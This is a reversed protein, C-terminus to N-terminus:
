GSRKLTQRNISADENRESLNIFAKSQTLSYMVLTTIFLLNLYNGVLGTWNAMDRWEFLLHSLYSAAYLLWVVLYGVVLLRLWVPDIREINSFGQKLRNTYGLMLYYSALGYSVYTINKLLLYAQFPPDYFLLDYDYKAQVFFETSQLTLYIPLLFAVEIAPVFHVFKSKVMAFGSNHTLKADRM